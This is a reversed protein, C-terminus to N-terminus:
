CVCVYLVDNIAFEISTIVITKKEITVKVVNPSWQCLYVSRTDDVAEAGDMTSPSDGREVYM